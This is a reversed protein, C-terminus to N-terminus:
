FIPSFIPSFFQHRVSFFQHRKKKNEVFTEKVEVKQQGEQGVETGADRYVLLIEDCYIPLPQEHFACCKEKAHLTRFSLNNSLRQNILALERDQKERGVDV